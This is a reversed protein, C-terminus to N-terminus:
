KENTQVELVFVLNLSFIQGKRQLYNIALRLHVKWVVRYCMGYWEIACVIGSSIGGSSLVLVRGSSLALVLLLDLHRCYWQFNYMLNRVEADQRGRHISIAKPILLVMSGAPFSIM